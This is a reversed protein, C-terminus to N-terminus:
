LRWPSSKWKTGQIIETRLATRLVFCNVCAEKSHSYIFSHISPMYFNKPELFSCQIIIPLFSLWKSGNSCNVFDDHCTCLWGPWDSDYLPTPCSPCLWAWMVPIGQCPYQGPEAILCQQGQCQQRPANAITGRGKKHTLEWKGQSKVNGHPCDCVWVPIDLQTLQPWTDTLKHSSLQLFCIRTRMVLPTMSRGTKPSKRELVAM